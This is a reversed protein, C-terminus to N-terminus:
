SQALDEVLSDFHGLALTENGLAGGAEGVKPTGLLLIAINGNFGFTASGGWQEALPRNNLLCSGVVGLM